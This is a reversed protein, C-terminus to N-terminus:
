SLYRTGKVCLIVCRELALNEACCALAHQTLEAIEHFDQARVAWPDDDEFIQMPAVKRGQVDQRAKRLLVALSGHQDKCGITRNVGHGLSM